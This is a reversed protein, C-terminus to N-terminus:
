KGKRKVAVHIDLRADPGGDFGPPYCEFWPLPEATEYGAGALWEGYIFHYTDGITGMTCAFVADTAAPIERLTLGEAVATGEPVAMGVLYDCGEGEGHCFGVGYYAGDVTLPAIEQARPGFGKEWLGAYDATHVDEFQVQVGLM